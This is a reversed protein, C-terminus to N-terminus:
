ARWIKLTGDDGFSSMVNRHPHLSVGLCQKEHVQVTAEVAATEVNFVYLTGDDAVGYLYKGSPSVSCAVFDCGAKGHTYTRVTQGAFGTVYITNSKNCILLRDPRKPLLQVSNVGLEAASGQNPRFTSICDTTKSDWVKVTGDSSASIVRSADDSFVARNVYSKHGLFEKLTRGSKLGQIRVSQDFSATLLQSGDRLFELSTVGKTHATPFKKLCSGTALRWIKVCGDTSGSALMEGDRSFALCLVSQDHMMFDDEAQYKLDKALKGSEFDWVEVFGDVSGSILYAGDPSFIACEAHSKNGFKIIKDNRAPVREDEDVVAEPAAGRFLDYQAGKPLQGIHNQWRLAQGLLTLLRSPAVVAIESQLAAAIEARRKEKTSAGHYAEREDFYSKQLLHELRLYREPASRKLAVMAPTQRLIGRALDLEKLEALEIIIQEFLDALKEVPLQLHKVQDLVTDWGAIYEVILVLPLIIFFLVGILTRGHVIDATFRDMDPVANLAVQSEHQLTRATEELANERLFQLILKIV